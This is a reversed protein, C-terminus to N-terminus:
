WINGSIGSGCIGCYGIRGARRGHGLLCWKLVMCNIDQDSIIVYNGFSVVIQHNPSGLRGSWSLCNKYHNYQSLLVPKKKPTRLSQTDTINFKFVLFLSCHQHFSNASHVDSFKRCVIHCCYVVTRVFYVIFILSNQITTM